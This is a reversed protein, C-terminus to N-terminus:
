HLWTAEWARADVALGNVLAAEAAPRESCSSPGPSIRRCPRFVAVYPAASLDKIEQQEARDHLVPSHPTLPIGAPRMRSLAVRFPAVTKSIMFAVSIYGKASLPHGTYTCHHGEPM